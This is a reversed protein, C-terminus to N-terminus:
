LRAFDGHVRNRIKRGSLVRARTKRRADQAAAPRHRRGQQRPLFHVIQRCIRAKHQRIGRRRGGASRQARRAPRAPAGRSKGGRAAHLRQPQRGRRARMRGGGCPARSGCCIGFFKEYAFHPRPKRRPAFASPFVISGRPQPAQRFFKEARNQLTCTEAQRPPPSAPFDARRKKEFPRPGAARGSCRYFKSTLNM